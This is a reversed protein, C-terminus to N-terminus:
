WLRRSPTVHADRQRQMSSWTAGSDVKAPIKKERSVEPPDGFAGLPRWPDGLPRRPGGLQRGISGELDKM